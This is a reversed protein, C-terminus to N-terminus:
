KILVLRWDKPQNSWKISVHQEGKNRRIELDVKLSDVSLSKIVISELYAPLYPSVFRITKKGPLIEIGLLSQLLLFVASVSWAQPSCAVPYATPGEGKRSNFGCFLEPLRQLPIFLSADFLGTTLRAAEEIYGYKAFGAAILSVDHPWVSGNHYSMPNYRIEDAALTRIGWGCFFTPQMLTKVLKSASKADAIETFLVQGANSSKVNCPKKDGDLALVFCENGEDWFQENFAKKLAFAESKLREAYTIDGLSSALEAAQIKAAYVYGQVECLAIPDKALSGDINSIADYSDKWGQNTLGKDAKHQYEVFGDGDQDGYVDIWNLAAQINPWLQKITNLDDTRKYYAGALMVYLPTADVTGYYKRFPVENLAVMEGNRIEHLIKGPEADSAKDEATAQHAALFFLVDKALQPALWLTQLATIIGDRGFATNYWPVGAYPYKGYPTDAMLSVLDAQSRNIWHTFQENSTEIVPFYANKKRLGPILLDKAQVYTKLPQSARDAQEFHIAYELVFVKKALLLIPFTVQHHNEPQDSFSESFHIIAKRHTQDLGTYPIEMRKNDTKRISMLTGKRERQLGRVEFIDAFDGKFELSLTVNIAHDLFNEIELKEHFVNDKVFQSRRVHISAAPITSHDPLMLVPNCLDTSLTDNEETISSSLLDLPRNDLLLNLHNIFRTDCNYLGQVKKGNPDINGWRNLIAFTDCHNLVQIRDDFPPLTTELENKDM